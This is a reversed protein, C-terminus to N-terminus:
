ASSMDGASRSTSLTWRKNLTKLMKMHLWRRLRTGQMLLVKTLLWAVHEWCNSIFKLKIFQNCSPPSGYKWRIPISTLQAAQHHSHTTLAWMVQYMTFYYYGLIINLNKVGWYKSTNVWRWPWSILTEIDYDYLQKTWAKGWYKCRSKDACKSRQGNVFPFYFCMDSKIGFYLVKSLNM